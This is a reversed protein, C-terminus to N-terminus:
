LKTRLEAIKNRSMQISEEMDNIQQQLRQKREQDDPRPYRQMIRIFDETSNMQNEIATLMTESMKLEDIIEKICEDEHLKIKDALRNMEDIIQQARTSSYRNKILVTTLEDIASWLPNHVDIATSPLTINLRKPLNM